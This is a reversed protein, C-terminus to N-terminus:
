NVYLKMQGIDRYDVRRMKLDIIVYSRTLVNYFVLDPYFHQGDITIRKQRGMFAFGRGLELLFDELHSILASELESEQWIVDEKGGVFELIFPDHVLTLPDFKEPKSPLNKKILDEIECSDKQTALLREYYQTAIQRELQRVSWNGAVAEETYYERAKPNSVKILHLYHSWSLKASLTQWIPYSLYFQRMNRINRASFGKGFEKTLRVSVRKILDDGYAAREKGGQAEVILKGVHWYAQVMATNVTTLVTARAQLLVQKIQSYVNESAESSIDRQKMIKNIIQLGNCWM